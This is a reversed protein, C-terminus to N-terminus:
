IHTCVMRYLRSLNKAYQNMMFSLEPEGKIEKKYNMEKIERINSETKLDLMQQVENLVYDTFSIYTELIRVEQTGLRKRNALFLLQEMESVMRWSVTLLERYYGNEGTDQKNIYQLIQDHILHYQMQADCIVSYNMPKSLSGELIRLYVHHMHFVQQFNYKFQQRMSTPFFFKNVILVVLIAMVVYLLRLEIAMTQNMALTTISLAYCTTFVTHIWTGPIAIYICVGTIGALIFHGVRGPLIPLLFSLLICGLATGIFRTKMRYKSDEYMPRLLLFANLPLWYGHDAGIVVVYAFSLTLVVSMRLAFRTEFADLKLQHFAKGRLPQNIIKSWTGEKTQEEKEEFNDLIILFLRFFNQLYMYIEGPLEKIEELLKEGETKLVRGEEKDWFHFESAKDIYNAVKLIYEKTYQDKLMEIHYHSGIFYATRQFLLAFMYSIREDRALEEKNGRKLYAKQYLSQMCKLLEETPNKVEGEQILQRLWSAFLFLGRQETEYNPTQPYKRQYLLILILFCGLGYIMVVTQLLFGHFDVPMLQLFTFTMLGTFYGLQNFQSSKIFVFWFPVVLNLAIRLPINVTAVFALLSMFLQMCCIKLLSGLSQSKKYNLNFLIIILPVVMTYKSGFIFIISSFLFLFFCIVPIAAKALKGILKGQTRIKERIDYTTM